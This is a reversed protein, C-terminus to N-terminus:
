TIKALAKRAERRVLPSPDNVLNELPGRATPPKLKALAMVAHAKVDNDDLLSILVDPIGPDKFRALGLVIMQRSRGNARDTALTILDPLSKVDAVTSLSNGIAWRLADFQTGRPLTRYLALLAPAAAPRAAPVGLSRVLGELLRRQEPRVPPTGLRELWDILIPVAERYQRRTNVLDWIDHVAIGTRQLDGIMQAPTDSM